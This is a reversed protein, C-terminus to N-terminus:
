VPFIGQLFFIVVRELIRAQSIWHVSSGPPSCDMLDCLTLCSQTALCCSSSRFSLKMDPALSTESNISGLGSRFLSMYIKLKILSMYIKLKILATSIPLNPFIFNNWGLIHNPFFYKWTLFFFFTQRTSHQCLKQSDSLIKVLM